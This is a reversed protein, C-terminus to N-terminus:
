RKFKKYFHDNRRFNKTIYEDLILGVMLRSLGTAKVIDSRKEFMMDQVIKRKYEPVATTDVVLRDQITDAREEETLIYTTEAIIYVYHGQRCLLKQEILEKVANTVFTYGHPVRDIVEKVSKCGDYKFAELIEIQQFTLKVPEM